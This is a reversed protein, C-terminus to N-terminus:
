ERLVEREASRAGRGPRRQRRERLADLARDGHRGGRVEGPESAVLREVRRAPREEDEGGEDRAQEGAAGGSRWGRAPRRRSRRRRTRPLLLGLRPCLGRSRLGGPAVLRDGRGPPRGGPSALREIRLQRRNGGPVLLRLEALKRRGRAGIWHPAVIRKPRGSARLGLQRRAPQLERAFRGGPVGGALLVPLLGAGRGRREARAPRIGGSGTGSAGAPRSAGAPPSSGSSACKRSVKSLNM